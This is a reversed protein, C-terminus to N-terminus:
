GEMTESGGDEYATYMGDANASAKGIHIQKRPFVTAAEKANAVFTADECGTGSCTSLDHCAENIGM